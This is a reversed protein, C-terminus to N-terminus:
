TRTQVQQLILSKIHPYSLAQCHQLTLLSITQKHYTRHLGIEQFQRGKCKRSNCTRRYRVIKQWQLSLTVDLSFTAQLIRIKLIWSNYTTRLQLHLIVTKFNTAIMVSKRNKPCNVRYTTFNLIPQYRSSTEKIKISKRISVLIRLTLNRTSM